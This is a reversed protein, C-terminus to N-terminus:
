ALEALRALAKQMAPQDDPLKEIDIFRIRPNLECGRKLCHHYTNSTATTGSRWSDM